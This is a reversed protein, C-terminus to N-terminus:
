LTCGEHHIRKAAVYAAHAVHPCDFYGIFKRQGSVEISAMYRGQHKTVGLLGTKSNKQAARLNQMNIRRSVARLNSWRNDDKVGNIHDVDEAPWEGTMLLFALRHALYQRGNVDIVSYGGRDSGVVDGAKVRRRDVKWRFVGSEPEYSLLESVEARTLEPTM